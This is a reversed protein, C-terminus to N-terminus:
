LFDLDLKKKDTEPPPDEDLIPPPVTPIPPKRKLAPKKLAAKKKPAKKKPSAKKQSQSPKPIGVQADKIMADFLTKTDSRADYVVTSDRTGKVREGLVKEILKMKKNKVQQVREDITHRCLLHIAYVRDHNSGIRIMRGLIQIYDGASWPCDYFILAKAEQLNIADGGAMTIFIVKIDSNPDQFSDMAAKRQSEKGEAGTVRVCKIGAKELTPMAIDVMRLFRTFVIVKENHFDGGDTVMDLLADLKESSYDPFEILGPHNVIEQCYILATLQTTEREEGDGHEMLGSLAEQYKAHQWTTLGVTVDRTILLPLEEAVLHKPRGLYFPDIRDRFKEVDAPRYGVIQPVRRNRAVRQMQVICFSNMFTNYSMKFVDPVVVRYIGYGEMLNNKILTATLGWVRQARASLHRCVKHVRTSPNKFVTAEDCILIYDHWHQLRTFDNGASSYGQILVTPGTSAEWQEQLAKRTEPGGVCLIINVGKTFREFEAAWQPVSSKKTLVVVKRDPDKRWILALAAITEVTKGLGTDDGVIFRKMAMLHVVMQKQYDRLVFPIMTGDRKSITERLYPTAPLSIDTKDRVQKLKEYIDPM